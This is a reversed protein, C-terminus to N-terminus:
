RQRFLPRRAGQTLGQTGSPPAGDRGIEKGAPSPRPEPGDDTRSPFPMEAPSTLFSQNETNGPEFRDLPTIRPMILAEWIHSSFEPLTSITGGPILLVEYGTM